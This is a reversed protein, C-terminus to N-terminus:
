TGSGSPSLGPGGETVPPPLRGGYGGRSTFMTALHHYNFSTEVRKPNYVYKIFNSLTM